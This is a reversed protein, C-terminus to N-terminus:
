AAGPATRLSDVNWPSYKTAGEPATLIPSGPAYGSTSGTAGSAAAQAATAAPTPGGGVGSGSGAGGPGGAGSGSITPSSSVGGGGAAYQSGGQPFLFSFLATTLAGKEATQVGKDSQIMDLITPSSTAVNSDKTGSVTVAEVPTTTAPSANAKDASVTVSETSGTYPPAPATIAPPAGPATVTVAETANNGQQGPAFAGSINPGAVGQGTVTVSEVGPTPATSAAPDAAAGGTGSSNLGLANVLQSGAYSGAGATLGYQLAKDIPAGQASAAGTTVIGSAIAQSADQSLGTAGAIEPTLGATAGGTVAGWLAGNGPDTGAAVATGVGAAAGILAGAAIDGVVVGVDLAAALTGAIFTGVGFETAAAAIAVGVLPPM